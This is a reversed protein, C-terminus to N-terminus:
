FKSNTVFILFNVFQYNNDMWIIFFFYVISYTENDMVDGKSDNYSELKINIDALVTFIRWYTMKVVSHM